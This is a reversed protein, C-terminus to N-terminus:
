NTEWKENFRKRNEEYFDEDTPVNRMTLGEEHSIKVKNILETSIGM